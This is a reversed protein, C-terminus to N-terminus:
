ILIHYDLSTFDCLHENSYWLIFKYLIKGILCDYLMLDEFTRKNNKGKLSFAAAVEKNLAARMMNNIFSRLHVGGVRSLKRILNRREQNSTSLLAELEDVENINKLPLNIQSLTIDEQHSGRKIARIEEKINAVEKFLLELSKDIKRQNNKIDSHIIEITEEVACSHHM